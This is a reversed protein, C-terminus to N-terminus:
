APLGVRRMLDQFRPDAGLMRLEAVKLYVLAGDRERYAKELWTFCRDTDGLALHIMAIEAAPRTLKELIERAEEKRGVRAYYYGLTGILPGRRGALDIAKELQAIAEDLRSQALYTISLGFHAEGFNPDLELTRRYQQIAQEYQGAFHLLRALAANIILSLPDLEQARNITALAEEHRGMAGLYIAYWHHTTAHNVNLKLARRFSREAGSWDWDYRFKIFALSTHPEPLKPDIRLAELAAARAKGVAEQPTLRGYGASGALTYSDALGAYAQACSPDKEIAQQYCEIAKQIGEETRKNWHYRGELYLRYADTNEAQRKALKRKQAGSLKFSLRGAIEKSIEAQVALIDSPPRDYQEGWLQWGTTADVLEVGVILTQGHQVVRGVLVARVNLEMGVTQPDTERGKFRFVTSRAMVRLGPLQSLNNILSETIGDSLYETKPDGGVNGFPLVALSDITKALPRPRSATGRVETVEAVFSYGRGPVTAVYRHEAPREGLAKRLSSINRTLNNEEVVTDRWVAKMLDDKELVQGRCEILAFLIGFAKPTLPVVEGDRLLLRKLPDVRFREFEYFRVGPKPM